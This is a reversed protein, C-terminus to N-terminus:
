QVRNEEIRADTWFKKGLTHSGAKKDQFWGMEGDKKSKYLYIKGFDEGDITVYVICKNKEYVDYKNEIKVDGLDVMSIYPNNFGDPYYFAAFNADFEFEKDSIRNESASDISLNFGQFGCAVEIANNIAERDTSIIVEDSKKCGVCSSVVVAFILVGCVKKRVSKMVCMM